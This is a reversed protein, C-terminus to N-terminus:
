NLLTFIKVERENSKGKNITRTVPIPKDVKVREAQYKYYKVPKKKDHRYLVFEIKKVHNAANKKGKVIGMEKDVNKFIATAAKKAANYASTSVFHGGQYSGHNASEVCFTNENEEKKGGSLKMIDDTNDNYGGAFFDEDEDELDNDYGKGGYNAGNFLDEGSM